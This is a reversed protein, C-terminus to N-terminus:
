HLAEDESDDQYIEGNIEAAKGGSMILFEFWIHSAKAWNIIYIQTHHTHLKKGECMAM